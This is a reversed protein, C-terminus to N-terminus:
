EDVSDGETTTNAKGAAISTESQSNALKRNQSPSRGLGDKSKKMKENFEARMEAMAAETFIKRDNEKKKVRDRIRAESIRKQEEIENKYQLQEDSKGGLYENGYICIRIL